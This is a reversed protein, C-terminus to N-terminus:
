PRTVGATTCNQDSLLPSKLFSSPQLVFASAHLVFSALTPFSANQLLSREGSWIEKMRGGEDKMRTSEDKM